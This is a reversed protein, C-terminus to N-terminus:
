FARAFLRKESFKAVLKTAEECTQMAKNRCGFAAYKPAQALTRHKNASLNQPRPARVFVFDARRKLKEPYFKDFAFAARLSARTRGPRM